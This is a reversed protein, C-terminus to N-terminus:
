PSAGVVITKPETLPSGGCGDVWDNGAAAVSPIGADHAARIAEDFLASYGGGGLSMSIVGRAGPHAELDTIAWEIGDIVYATSGSGDCGLVMVPVITAEKAM